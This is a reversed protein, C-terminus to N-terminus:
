LGEEAERKVMAEQYEEDTVEYFTDPSVGEALIATKGYNAGDTLWMNEDAFLMTRKKM